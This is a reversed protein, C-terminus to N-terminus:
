SDPGGFQSVFWRGSGGLPRVVTVIGTGGVSCGGGLSAPRAAAHLGVFAVDPDVADFATFGRVQWPVLRQLAAAARAFDGWRDLSGPTVLRKLGQRYEVPDGLALAFMLAVSRPEMLGTDVQDTRSLCTPPSTTWSTM